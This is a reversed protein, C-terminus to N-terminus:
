LRPKHNEMGAAARALRSTLFFAERTPNVLPLPLIGNACGNCATLFPM